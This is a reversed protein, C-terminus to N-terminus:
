QEFCLVPISTSCPDRKASTRLDTNSTEHMEATTGADGTSWDGCNQTLEAPANWRLTGTWFDNDIHGGLSDLEPPVDLYDTAFIGAGRLLRVGDVRRFILGPAFRSEISETTTAVGALFDGSLGAAAADAICVADASSRGQGPIWETKSVFALHAQPDPHIALPVNRGTEVCMLHAASDCDGTSGNLLAAAYESRTVTGTDTALNSTWDACLETSATGGSTGTYVLVNGVDNGYEDLRLPFVIKGNSFATPADAFPAGDVRVWGRSTSVRDAADTTSDSLYAVFTGSLGGAAARTACISDAGALGGFAGDTTTSTVFVRNPLPAFEAGVNIDGNATLECTFTGGCAGSWGAFWGDAAAVGRLWVATGNPVELTCTSTSCQFLNNGMITGGASGIHQITIRAVGAPADPGGGDPTSSSADDFGFRCGAIVVLACLHLRGM